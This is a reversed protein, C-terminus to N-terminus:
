ISKQTAETIGWQKLLWGVSRTTQLGLGSKHSGGDKVGDRSMGYHTKHQQARSGKSHTYPHAKLWVWRNELDPRCACPKHRQADNRM